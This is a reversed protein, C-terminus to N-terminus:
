MKHGRWYRALGYTYKVANIGQGLRDCVDCYLEVKVKQVM